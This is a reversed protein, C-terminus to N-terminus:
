GSGRSLRRAAAAAAHALHERSIDVPVYEVCRTPGLAELLLRTKTGSGAGPEVVRVRPGWSAVIEHARARMISTETRTM